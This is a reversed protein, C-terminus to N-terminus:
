IEDGTARMDVVLGNDYSAGLMAPVVGIRTRLMVGADAVLLVPSSLSAGDKLKSPVSVDDISSVGM